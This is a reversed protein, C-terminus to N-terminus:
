GKECRMASTMDAGGKVILPSQRTTSATLRSRSFPVLETKTSLWSPRKPITVSRSKNRASASPDAVENSLVSSVRMVEGTWQTRWSSKSYRAMPRM